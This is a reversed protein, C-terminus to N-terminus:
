SKLLYVSLIVIQVAVILWFWTRFTAKSTKHRFRKQALFAGPTGGIFTLVHFVLEPVRTMRRGAIFKDFGFLVVTTFNVAILYSLVGGLGLLGTAVAM